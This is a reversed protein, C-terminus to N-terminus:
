SALRTELAGERLDSERMMRSRQQNLGSQLLGSWSSQRRNSLRQAM